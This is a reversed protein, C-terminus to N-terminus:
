RNEGQDDLVCAAGALALKACLLNSSGILVILNVLRREGFADLAAAFTPDGVARTALLEAAFRYAVGAEAAPRTRNWQELV